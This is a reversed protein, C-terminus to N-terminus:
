NILYGYTFSNIMGFQYTYDNTFHSYSFPEFNSIFSLSPNHDYLLWILKFGVAFAFIFHSKIIADGVNEDVSINWKNIINLYRIIYFILIFKIGVIPITLYSLVDTLKVFNLWSSFNSGTYENKIVDETIFFENITFNLIFITFCYLTFLKINSVNIM